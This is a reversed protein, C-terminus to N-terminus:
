KSRNEDQEGRQSPQANLIRKLGPPVKKGMTLTKAQIIIPLFVV